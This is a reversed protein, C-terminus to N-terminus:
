TRFLSALMLYAMSNQLFHAVIGPVLSQRLHRLLAFVIGLGFIPLADQPPHVAAFAVASLLIGGGSGFRQRLGTLLAGRFFFEEFLPALVAAMLFILTRDLPESKGTLLPLIPNPATNPNDRFLWQTLRGLVLTLPLTAAYGAVGYLVEKGLTTVTAGLEALTTGRRRAQRAAYLLALLGTGAQLGVQTPLLPPALSFTRAVLALAVGVGRYLALYFVFIDVLEAWGLREPLREVRGLWQWQRKLAATGTLLLAAVGLLGLLVLGFGLSLTLSAYGEALRARQAEAAAQAERDQRRRAVDALAQSELFRLHMAKLQDEADRPLAPVPEPGYLSYWLAREREVQAEPVKEARLDTVLKQLLKLDLPKGLQAELVITRRTLNPVPLALALQRYHAAPADLAPAGLPMGYHLRIGREAELYREFDPGTLSERALSVPKPEPSRSPLREGLLLSAALVALWLYTTRPLPSM